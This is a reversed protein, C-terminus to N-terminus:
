ARGKMGGVLGALRDAVTLVGEQLHTVQDALENRERLLVVYDALLSAIIGCADTDEHGEGSPTGCVVCDGEDLLEDRGTAKQRALWQQAVEVSTPMHVSRAGIAVARERVWGRLAVLDTTVFDFMKVMLDPERMAPVFLATPKGAGKAWGAELSASVGCPMVYVCLDSARLAAMDLAFGSDAIPHNLAALYREPTWDKWEGDIASWRFGDNGPEPNRFDYVDHGDERLQAVADPQYDNRWSSAVYIKV